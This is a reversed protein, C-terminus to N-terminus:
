CADLGVILSSALQLDFAGETFLAVEVRYTGDAFAQGLATFANAGSDFIVGLNPVDFIYFDDFGFSKVFWDSESGGGAFPSPVFRFRIDVETPVGADAAVSATLTPSAGSCGSFYVSQVLYGGVSETGGGSAASAATPLLLASVGLGALTSLRMMGRRDLRDFTGSPMPTPAARLQTGVPSPTLPAAVPRDM